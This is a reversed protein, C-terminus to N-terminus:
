ASCTPMEPGSTVRHGAKGDHEELRDGIAAVRWGDIRAGNRVCVVHCGKAVTRGCIVLENM